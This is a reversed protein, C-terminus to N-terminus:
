KAPAVKVKAIKGKGMKIDNKFGDGSCIEVCKRNPYIHWFKQDENDWWAWMETPKMKIKTKM